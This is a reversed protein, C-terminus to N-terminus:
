LLRERMWNYIITVDQMSMNNKRRNCRDCLVAINGEVYGKAPDIRDISPIDHPRSNRDCFTEYDLACKCCECNPHSEYLEVMKTATIFGLDITINRERARQRISRVVGRARYKMPNKAKIRDVTRRELATVKELNDRRYQKQYECAARREEVSRNANMERRCVKCQSARGGRGRKSRHFEDEPKEVECLVCRMSIIRPPVVKINM